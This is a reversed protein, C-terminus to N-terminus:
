SGAHRKRLESLRTRRADNPVKALNLPPNLERLVATEVSGLTAADSVPLAVVALHQHMWATLADEDIQSDGRQEALVSGLSYRFTSFSHRNGLHM